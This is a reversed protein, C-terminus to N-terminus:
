LREPLVRVGEAAAARRLAADLSGLDVGRRTALELYAADYASLQHTRALLLCASWAERLAHDDIEIPLTQLAVLYRHSDLRTIRGRREATLLANGVEWRWLPPITAVRGEGLSELIEDTGRTAEDEFVFALALSSDLVFTM